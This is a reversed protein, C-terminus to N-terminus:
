EVVVTTGNHLVLVEGVKLSGAPNWGKGKVYFPHEATAEIKKGSSLSV